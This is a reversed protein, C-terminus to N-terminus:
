PRPTALRSWLSRFGSALSAVVDDQTMDPAQAHISGLIRLRRGCLSPCRLLVHRPTDAEERCVRCLAAPFHPDACGTCDPSPRRGIRHLWQESASWHDARLQHTDVAAGRDDGRIPGPLRERFIDKYWGDPWTVRWQKRALRAAARTVSSVELPTSSQELASAEKALSDAQENAPIGCHAPM